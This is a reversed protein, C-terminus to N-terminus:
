NDLKKCPEIPSGDGYMPVPKNQDFPGVEPFLEVLKAYSYERVSGGNMLIHVTGDRLTWGGENDNAMLAENSSAEQTKLHQKARGCYSTSATSVENLNPWPDRGSELEARVRHYEPDNDRASGPAFYKDLNEPTHEVINPTTWTSMVYRHGGEMPLHGTKQHYLELFTSHAKLNMSNALANAADKSGMINPLLVAALLGIISIVILLEILTFGTQTRRM